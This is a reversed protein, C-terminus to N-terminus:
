ATSSGVGAEGAKYTLMKVIAVATTTTFTNVRVDLLIAV